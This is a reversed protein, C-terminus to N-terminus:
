VMYLLVMPQKLPRAYPKLDMHMVLMKKQSYNLKKNKILKNLLFMVVDQMWMTLSITKMEKLIKPYRQTSFPRKNEKYTILYGM